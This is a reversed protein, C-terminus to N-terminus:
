EKVLIVVDFYCVKSESPWNIASITIPVESSLKSSHVVHCRLDVQVLRIIPLFNINKSSCDDQKHHDSLMWRECCCLRDIWEVSTDCSISEINEPPSMALVFRLTEGM